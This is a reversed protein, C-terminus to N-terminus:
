TSMWFHGGHRSPDAEYVGGFCDTRHFFPGPVGLFSEVEQPRLNISILPPLLASPPHCVGKLGPRLSCGSLQSILIDAQMKWWGWACKSFSDSAFLVINQSAKHPNHTPYTKISSNCLILSRLSLSDRPTSFYWTLAALM